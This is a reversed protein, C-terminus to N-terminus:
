YLMSIFDKAMGQNYVGCNGTAQAVGGPNDAQLIELQKLTNHNLDRCNPRRLDVEGETSYMLEAGCKRQEEQLSM